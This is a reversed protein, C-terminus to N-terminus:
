DLKSIKLEPLTSTRDSASARQDRDHCTAAFASGGGSALAKITSAAGAAQLIIVAFLLVLKRRVTKNGIPSSGAGSGSSSFLARAPHAIRVWRLRPAFTAGSSHELHAPTSTDSLTCLSHAEIELASPHRPTM